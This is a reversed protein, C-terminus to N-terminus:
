DIPGLGRKASKRHMEFRKKHRIEHYKEIQTETLFNKLQKDTSKRLDRIERLLFRKKPHHQGRYKEVTKVLM